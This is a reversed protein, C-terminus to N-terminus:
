VSCMYLMTYLILACCICLYPHPATRFEKIRCGLYQSIYVDGYTPAGHLLAYVNSPNFGIVLSLLIDTRWHGEIISALAIRLIEM